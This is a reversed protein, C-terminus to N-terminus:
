RHGIRDCLLVEVLKSDAASWGGYRAGRAEDAGVVRLLGPPLRAPREERREIAPEAGRRQAVRERLELRDRLALPERDDFLRHERELAVGRLVRGVLPLVFRHERDAAARLGLLAHRDG